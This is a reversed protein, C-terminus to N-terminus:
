PSSGRPSWCCGDTGEVVGFWAGVLLLVGYAALIDGVYFLLADVFGVAVLVLSRRWLLRRM